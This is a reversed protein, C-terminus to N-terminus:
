KIVPAEDHDLRVYAPEESEEFITLDMDAGFPAMEEYGKYGEEDTVGEVGVIHRKGELVVHKDKNANDKAYFVQLVDKALIFPEDKHGINSLDVITMGDKKDTFVGGPLRVWQCRLLAVKLAGYDLEWIEDIVGYYTVHVQGSDDYADFRVGSNQNSSRQDQQRTYFTFGNIDYGKYKMLTTSLGLALVDLQACGSVKGMM